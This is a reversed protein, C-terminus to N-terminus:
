ERLKNLLKNFFAFEDMQKYPSVLVKMTAKYTECLDEACTQGERSTEDDDDSDEADNYRQM